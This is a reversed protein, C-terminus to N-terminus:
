KNNEARLKSLFKKMYIKGVPKEEKNSSVTGIHPEVADEIESLSKYKNIDKIPLKTKYKDFISYASQIRPHDEQRFDGNHYLQMIHSLYTKNTTPDGHTAFYDVVANGTRHEAFHDHSTNIKNTNDGGYKNKLFDIKSELLIAVTETIFQKYSKTNIDELHPLVEKQWVSLTGMRSRIKPNTEKLKDIIPNYHASRDKSKQVDFGTYDDNVWLHKHHYIQPDNKQQTFKTSGDPNVRISNGSIPEPSTDFDPSYIFSFSGKDPGSYGYRVINFLHAPHKTQLTSLATLYANRPIRPHNEVYNRHLYVSGGIEKGISETIFNLFRNM